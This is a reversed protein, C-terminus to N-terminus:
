GIKEEEPPLDPTKIRDPNTRQWEEFDRITATVAELFEPKVNASSQLRFRYDYLIGVSHRDQARFVITPEDTDKTKDIIDQSRDSVTM